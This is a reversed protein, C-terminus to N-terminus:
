SRVRNELPIIYDALIYNLKNLECQYLGHESIAIIDAEKALTELFPKAIHIDRRANWATVNLSKTRGNAQMDPYHINLLILAIPFILRCAAMIYKGIYKARNAMFVIQADTNNRTIMTM